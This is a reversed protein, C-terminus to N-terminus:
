KALPHRYIECAGQNGSETYTTWGRRELMGRLRASTVNPIVCRPSLSDLFRGVHGKGEELSMMLPIYILGNEEIAYGHIKSTLLSNFDLPSGSESLPPEFYVLNM